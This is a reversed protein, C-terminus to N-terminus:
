EMILKSAIGLKLLESNVLDIICKANYTTEKKSGSLYFGDHLWLIIKTRSNKKLLYEIGPSLIKTEISAILNNFKQNNRGILNNNFADTTSDKFNYILYDERSQIFDSIEPTKILEQYASKIHTPLNNENIVESDSFLVSYVFEKISAKELGTKQILYAWLEGSSCLRTLSETKTIHAAISLQSHALDLKVCDDFAIDRIERKLTQFHGGDAYIRVTNLGQTYSPKPNQQIATLSTLAQTKSEDPLEDAMSLMMDWHKNVRSQFSNSPLNNLYSLLQSSFNNPYVTKQNIGIDIISHQIRKLSGDSLLVPNVKPKNKQEQAQKMYEPVDVIRFSTAKSRIYVPRITEIDILTGLRQLNSSILNKKSHKKGLIQLMTETDIVAFADDDADRFSGFLFLGILAHIKKDDGLEQILQERFSSEVMWDTKIFRDKGFFPTPTDPQIDVPPTPVSEEKLETETTPQDDSFLVDFTARGDVDDVFSCLYMKRNLTIPLPYERYLSSDGHKISPFPAVLEQAKKVAEKHSCASTVVVCGIRYEDLKYLATKIKNQNCHLSFKGPLDEDIEGTADNVTNIEQIYWDVRNTLLQYNPNNKRTDSYQYFREHSILATSWGLLAKFLEKSSHNNIYRWNRPQNHRKQNVFVVPHISGASMMTLKSSYLCLSWLADAIDSCDSLQNTLKDTLRSKGDVKKWIDPYQQEIYGPM